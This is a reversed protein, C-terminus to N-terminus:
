WLLGARSDDRRGDHWPTCDLAAGTDAHKPVAVPCRTLSAILSLWYANNAGGGTAIMQSAPKHAIDLVDRADAIAFAVGQLVARAM